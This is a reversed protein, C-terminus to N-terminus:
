PLAHVESSSKIEPSFLCIFLLPSVLKIYVSPKSKLPDSHCTFVTFYVILMDPMLTLPQFVFKLIISKIEETKETM